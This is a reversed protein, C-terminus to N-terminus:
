WGGDKIIPLEPRHYGKLAKRTAQAATGFHSVSWKRGVIKRNSHCSRDCSQSM